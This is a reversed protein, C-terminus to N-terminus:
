HNTASRTLQSLEHKGLLQNKEDLSDSRYTYLQECCERTIKKIGETDTTYGRNWEQYQHNIDERKKKGKGVMSLNRLKM